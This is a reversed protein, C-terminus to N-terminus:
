GSRRLRASLVVERIVIGAGSALLPYRRLFEPEDRQPSPVAFRRQHDNLTMVHFLDAVEIQVRVDKPSPCLPAAFPDVDLRGIQRAFPLGGDGLLHPRNVHRSRTAHEEPHEIKLLHQPPRVMETFTISTTILVQTATLDLVFVQATLLERQPTVFRYTSSPALSRPLTLPLLERLLPLLSRSMLHSRSRYAQM